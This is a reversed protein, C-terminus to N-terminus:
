EKSKGEHLDWKAIVSLSRVDDVIAKLLGEGTVEEFPGDETRQRSLVSKLREVIDPQDLLLGFNHFLSTFSPKDSPADEIRFPVM